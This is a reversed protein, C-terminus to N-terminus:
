AKRLYRARKRRISACLSRQEASTLAEEPIQSLLELALDCDRANGLAEERRKITIIDADSIKLRDKLFISQYFYDKTRKRWDHLADDGPEDRFRRRCERERRQIRIHAAVLSMWGIKDFELKRFYQDAKDLHQRFAAELQADSAQVRNGPVPQGQLSEIVKGMASRLVPSSRKDANKLWHRLLTLFVQGDRLHHLQRSAKRLQRHVPKIGKNPLAGHTMRLLSRMRKIDKRAEHVAHPNDQPAHM